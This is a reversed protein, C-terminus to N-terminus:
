SRNLEDLAFGDYPWPGGTDSCGGSLVPDPPEV